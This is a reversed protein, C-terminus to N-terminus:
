PAVAMMHELACVALPPRPKRSLRLDSFPGCSRQAFCSREIAATKFGPDEWMLNSVGWGGLAESGVTVPPLTCKSHELMSAVPETVSVPLWGAAPQASPKM